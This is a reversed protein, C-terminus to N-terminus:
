LVACLLLNRQVICFVECQSLRYGYGHKVYVPLMEQFAHNWWTTLLDDCATKEVLPFNRLINETHRWRQLIWQTEGMSSDNGNYIAATADFTSTSHSGPRQKRVRKISKQRIQGTTMLLWSPRHVIACKHLFTRANNATHTLLKEYGANYIICHGGATWSAVFCELMAILAPPLLQM